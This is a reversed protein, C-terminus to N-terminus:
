GASGAARARGVRRPRRQGAGTLRGPQSTCAPARTTSRGRPVAARRGAAGPRPDGPRTTLVAVIRRAGVLSRTIKDAAEVATRLPIVLFSAYGYFAVLDGVDITGELALRAGLWTVVVLFIGPLLM